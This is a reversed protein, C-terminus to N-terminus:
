SYIEGDPGCPHKDKTFAVLAGCLVTWKLGEQKALLDDTLEWTQFRELSHDLRCSVRIGAFALATCESGM